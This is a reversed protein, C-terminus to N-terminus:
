MNDLVQIFMEVHENLLFAKDPCFCILCYYLFGPQIELNFVFVIKDCFM